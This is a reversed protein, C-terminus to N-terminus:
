VFGDDGDVGGVGLIKVVGDTESFVAVTVTPQAHMNGIHASKDGHVGGEIFLGTPSAVTDIQGAFDDRHQRLYEAVADTGKLGALFAKGFADIDGIVGFALHQL